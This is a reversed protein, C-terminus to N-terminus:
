KLISQFIGSSINFGKITLPGGANAGYGMIDLSNPVSGGQISADNQLARFVEKILVYTFAVVMNPTGDPMQNVNLGLANLDKVVNATSQIVSLGPRQMMACVLPLRQLQPFPKRTNSFFGNIKECIQKIGFM